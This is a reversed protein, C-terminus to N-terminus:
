SQDISMYSSTAAREQLHLTRMDHATGKIEADAYISLLGCFLGTLITSANLWVGTIYSGGDMYSVTTFIYSGVALLNSSIAFVLLLNQGDFFIRRYKLFCVASIVVSSISFFTSLALFLVAMVAAYMFPEYRKDIEQGSFFELLGFDVPLSIQYESEDITLNPRSWPVFLSFFSSALCIFSAFLPPASKLHLYFMDIISPQCSYFFNDIDSAPYRDRISVIEKYFDSETKRPTSTATFLM